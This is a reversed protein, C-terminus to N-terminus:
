SKAWIRPGQIGIIRLGCDIKPLACPVFFIAQLKLLVVLLKSFNIVACYFLVFHVVCIIELPSPAYFLASVKLSDFSGVYLM